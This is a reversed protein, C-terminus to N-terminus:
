RELIKELLIKIFDETIVEALDGINDATLGVLDNGWRDQLDNGEKITNANIIIADRLAEVSFTDYFDGTDLLTVRDIPQGKQQKLDKTFDSYDGGISKLSIGESDIGQFLQEDTNLFIVYEKIEQDQFLAFLTSYAGLGKVNKVVDSLLGYQLM